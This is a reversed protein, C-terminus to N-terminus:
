KKKWSGDLQKEWTQTEVLNGALDKVGDIVILDGISFEDQDVTLKIEDDPAAYYEPARYLTSVKSILKITDANVTESDIGSQLDDIWIWADYAKSYHRIGYINPPTKDDSALSSANVQKVSVEIGLMSTQQYGELIYTNLYLDGATKAEYEPMKKFTVEFVVDKDAGKNYGVVSSLESKSLELLAKTTAYERFINASSYPSLSNEVVTTKGTAIKIEKTEFNYTDGSTLYDIRVGSVSFNTPNDDTRPLSYVAKSADVFYVGRLGVVTGIMQGDIEEIRLGTSEDAGIGVKINGIQDRLGVLLRGLRGRADFHSDLLYGEPILGIGHTYLNNGPTWDATEGNEDFESLEGWQGSLNMYMTQYNEGISYIPDSMIHLGASTGTIFGGREYVYRIAEMYANDSGDENLLSIAHLMQDGGMFYVGDCSKILETYYETYDSNVYYDLTDYNLPIWEIDMGADAFIKEYTGWAPDDETDYTYTLSTDYDRSSNILAIKPRENKELGVALQEGIYDYNTKVTDGGIPYVVGHGNRVQDTKAKPIDATIIYEKSDYITVMGDKDVTAIYVYYVDKGFPDGEVTKQKDAFGIKQNQTISSEILKAQGLKVLEDVKAVTLRKNNIIDTEYGDKVVYMRELDQISDRYLLDKSYFLIMREMNKSSIDESFDIQYFEIKSRAVKEVDIQDKVHANYLIVAAEARTLAKDPMFNGDPFGKMLGAQTVSNVLTSAEKPIKAYDKYIDGSEDKPSLGELTFILKTMELRTVPATANFIEDTWIKLYGAKSAVAVASYYWNDANIDKYSVAGLDSFGYAKNVMTILEARSIAKNPMLLGEGNGFLIGQRYLAQMETEAWHKTVDKANTGYTVSSMSLSFVLLVLLIFGKKFTRNM